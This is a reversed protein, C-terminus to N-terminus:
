GFCWCNWEGERKEGGWKKWKDGGSNDSGWDM